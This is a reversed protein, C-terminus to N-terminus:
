IINVFTEKEAEKEELKRIDFSQIFGEIEANFDKVWQDYEEIKQFERSLSIREAGANESDNIDKPMANELLNVTKEINFYKTRARLIHGRV